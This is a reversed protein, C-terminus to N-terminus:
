HSITLLFINTFKEVPKWENRETLVRKSQMGSGKSSQTLKPLLQAHKPTLHLSLKRWIVRVNPLFFWTCANMGQRETWEKHPNLMFISYYQRLYVLIYIFIFTSFNVSMGKLWCIKWKLEILKQSPHDKRGCIKMEFNLQTKIVM